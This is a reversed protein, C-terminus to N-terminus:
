HSTPAAHAAAIRALAADAARTLRDGPEGNALKRLLEGAEATGIHELVAVARLRRVSEPPLAPLHPDELLRRLRARVEASSTRELERRLRPEIIEAVGALARSAKARTAFDSSDLDALRDAVWQADITVPRLHKRLLPLAKAPAAALRNMAPYATRPDDKLLDAWCTDLQEATLAAVPREVLRWAPALDWLLVTGDEHGTAAARGDPAVALCTGFLEPAWAPLRDEAPLHLLRRGGSVEWVHLADRGSAILLRGDPSFAFRSSWSVPAEVRLLPRGTLLEYVAIANWHQRDAMAAVLRGDASFAFPHSLPPNPQKLREKGSRVDRVSGDAVAVTRGDPAIVFDEVDGAWTLSRSSLRQCNAVDWGILSGQNEFRITSTLEPRPYALTWLTRGDASLRAAGVRAKNDASRVDFGRVKKATRIDRLYLQGDDTHHLV